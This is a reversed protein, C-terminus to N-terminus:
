HLIAQRSLNSFPDLKIACAGQVMLLSKSLAHESLPFQTTNCLAQLEAKNGQAVLLLFSSHCRSSDGSCRQM